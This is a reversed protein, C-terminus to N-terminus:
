LVLAGLVVGLLLVGKVGVRGGDWNLGVPGPGPAAPASSKMGGKGVECGLIDGGIGSRVLCGRTGAPNSDTINCYIWCAQGLGLEAGGAGDDATGSETEPHHGPTLPAIPQQCCSQM